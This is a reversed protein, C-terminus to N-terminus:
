HLPLRSDKREVIRKRGGAVVKEKGVDHRDPRRPLNEPLLQRDAALWCRGPLQALRRNERPEEAVVAHRQVEGGRGQLRVLLSGERKGKFLVPTRHRVQLWEEAGSAMTDYQTLVAAAVKVRM